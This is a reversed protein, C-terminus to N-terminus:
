SRATSPDTIGARLTSTGGPLYTRVRPGPAIADISRAAVDLHAEVLPIAVSELCWPPYLAPHVNVEFVARRELALDVAGFALGTSATAAVALQVFDAPLDALDIVHHAGGTAENCPRDPDSQVRETAVLPRGHLVIIRYDHRNGDQDFNDADESMLWDLGLSEYHVLAAGLQDPSSVHFIHDGAMGVRPRTWVDKGLQEFASQATGADPRCLAITAMQGIGDRRFCEVTRRKDTADRWAEVDTGISGGGLDDLRRQFGAIARRRNPPIEYLLVFSPTVPLHEGPVDLTLAGQELRARGTGGDMFHRADIMVPAAGCITEVAACLTARSGEDSSHDTVLAM